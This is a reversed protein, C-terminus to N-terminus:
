VREKKKNVYKWINLFVFYMSSLWISIGIVFELVEIWKLPLIGSEEIFIGLIIGSLIIGIISLINVKNM